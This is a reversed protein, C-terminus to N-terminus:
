LKGERSLRDYEEHTLVHRVFVRGMSYVMNVVLRYKNGGINFITKEDGLFSVSPFAQKVEVSSAYRAARMIGIWVKLPSKAAVHREAFQMLTRENLIHM